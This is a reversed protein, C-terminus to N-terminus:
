GSAAFRHVPPHAGEGVTVYARAGPVFAIAEGQREALLSPAAGACSEESFARWLPTGAPRPYLVVSLYTRLAVTGGDATVDGGTVGRGLGLSVDAVRELVAATGGAADARGRYVVGRGGVLDKTVVLLDHSRPDVLLAEADHAGDPYTFTLAAAGRLVRAGHDGAHTVKPEPVRYVTVSARTAANDGIDAVYISWARSRVSQGPGPGVAIDEWDVAQAGDLAFEGLTKGAADIAFVRATDGSDNHVWYVGRNRRSAAIGSIETLADSAVTGTTSAQLTGGCAAALVPSRSSSTAAGAGGTGNGPVVVAVVLVAVLVTGVFTWRLKSRSSEMPAVYRQRM